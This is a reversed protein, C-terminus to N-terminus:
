WPELEIKEANGVLLRRRTGASIRYRVWARQEQVYASQEDVIVPRGTASSLITSVRCDEETHQKIGLNDMVSEIDEHRIGHSEDDM